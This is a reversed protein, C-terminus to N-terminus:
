IGGPDGTLIEVGLTTMKGVDVSSIGTGFHGGVM